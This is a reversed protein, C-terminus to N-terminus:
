SRTRSAVGDEAVSSCILEGGGPSAASRRAVGPRVTAASGGTGSVIPPTSFFAMTPVQASTVAM